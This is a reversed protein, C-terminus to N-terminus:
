RRPSCDKFIIQNNPATISISQSRYTKKDMVGTGLTYGSKSYFTDVNDSRNLDIPMVVRRGKLVASAYTTLGQKNFGYTVNVKKGQQCVYRVTRKSVTPNSTDPNHTGAQALGSLVLMSSLAALSLLKM